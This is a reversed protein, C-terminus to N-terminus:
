VDKGISILKTALNSQGIFHLCFHHTGNGTSAKLAVQTEAMNEKGEEVLWHYRLTGPGEPQAGPHHCSVVSSEGEGSLSQLIHLNDTVVADDLRCPYGRIHM